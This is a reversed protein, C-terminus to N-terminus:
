HIFHGASGEVVDAIDARRFAGLGEFGFEICRRLKLVVFVLGGVEFIVRDALFDLVSCFLFTM